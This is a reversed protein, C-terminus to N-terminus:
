SGRAHMATVVSVECDAAEGRSHTCEAFHALVARVTTLEELREDVDRLRRRALDRRRGGGAPRLVAAVEDLPLGLRQCLRVLRLREVAEGPYRRHGNPLREPVLLGIADYYRLTTAPVGSREALQGVTLM